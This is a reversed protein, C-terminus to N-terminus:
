TPLDFKTRGSFSVLICKVNSVTKSGKSGTHHCMSTICASLLSLCFVPNSLLRLKKQLRMGFAVLEKEIVQGWIKKKKSCEPDIAKELEFLCMLVSDQLKSKYLSKIKPKLISLIVTLARVTISCM